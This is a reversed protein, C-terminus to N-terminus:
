LDEQMSDVSIEVDIHYGTLSGTAGLERGIATLPEWDDYKGSRQEIAKGGQQRIESEGTTAYNLSVRPLGPKTRLSVRASRSNSVRISDVVGTVEVKRGKYEEFHDRNRKFYEAIELATRRGEALGEPTAQPVPTSTAAPPLAVPGSVQYTKSDEGGSFSEVLDQEDFRVVLTRWEDLDPHFFEEPYYYVSGQEAISAPTGLLAKVDKKHKGSFDAQWFEVTGRSVPEPAPKQAVLNGALAAFICANVAVMRLISKRM